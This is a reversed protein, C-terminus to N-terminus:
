RLPTVGAAEHQSLLMKFYTRGNFTFPVTPRMFFQEPPTKKLMPPATPAPAPVRPFVPPTLEALKKRIITLRYKVVDPQWGPYLVQVDGIRQQALMLQGYAERTRGDRLLTEARKFSQYGEFYLDGPEDGRAMVPLLAALLLAM